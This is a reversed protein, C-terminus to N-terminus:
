SAKVIGVTMTEGDFEAGTVDAGEPPAELFFEVTLTEGLIYERHAQVAEALGTTALLYLKIRDAIDFDATKRLEQVRRVFERALGERVLDPTLETKLAALYAGDSAVVLGSRAEARVEVEEPLVEIEQGDVTVVVSKGALFLPGCINGDLEIVARAIKPYLAKHKQGLQKPLPKLSYTVADGASDL